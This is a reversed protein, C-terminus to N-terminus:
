EGRTKPCSCTASTATIGAPENAEQGSSTALKGTSDHLM